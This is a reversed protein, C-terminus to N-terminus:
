RGHAVVNCQLHLKLLRRWWGAEEDDDSSRKVAQELEPLEGSGSRNYHLRTASGSPWRERVSSHMQRQAGFGM